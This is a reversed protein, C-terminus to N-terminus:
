LEVEKRRKNEPNKIIVPLKIKVAGIKGSFFELSKEVAIEGMKELQQIGQWVMGEFKKENIEDFTALNIDEGIKLGKEEIVKLILHFFHGGSCLIGDIGNKIFKKLEEYLFAERVRFYGSEFEKEGPLNLILDKEIAIKNEKLAKKYGECREVTYELGETIGVFGIKKCGINILSKTLKYAGDINDTIIYNIHSNKFRRNVSIVFYGKMRLEELFNCEEKRPILWIMAKNEGTEIEQKIKGINNSFFLISIKLDNEKSKKLIGNFITSFFPDDRSSVKPFIVSIKKATIDRKINNIFTGKGKKRIILGEREIIDLAKRVTMHSTKFKLSLEMQSPLKPNNNKNKHIIEKLYEAIEIYKPKININM